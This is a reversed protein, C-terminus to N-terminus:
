SKKPQDIKKNEKTSILVILVIYLIIPLKKEVVWVFDKTM